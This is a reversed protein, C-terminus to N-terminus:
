RSNYLTQIEAASLARNYIRVEDILGNYPNGGDSQAGITLPNAADSVRNTTGNTTQAYTTEVGNIYIRANAASTSGDWSIAIHQWVNASIVNSNSTHNLDTDYDVVFSLRGAGTSSPGFKWGSAGAATRKSFVDDSAAAVNRPYIWASVTIAPLQDLSTASGANVLDDNGDFNLAKGRKGDVWTPGGTLTGRNENGSGDGAVTGTGENMSWYGVLGKDTPPAFKAAGSKYLTQIEGASLARNYVRVEDILGNFTRDAPTNGGITAVNASDDDLSGDGTTRTSVTVSKGDIYFIAPTGVTGSYTFAVHIWKNFTLVNRADYIDNNAGTTTQNFRFGNVCSDSNCLYLLWGVATGQSKDIIRGFNSEGLSRANIWATVTRAGLGIQDLSADSGINVYDDVGDFNLAKGRKGDVWTPGGTLTGRNGNGSGDGAVTGTGENMSWYGVLGLNTLPKSIIAADVINFSLLWLPIVVMLIRLVIRWSASSIKVGNSLEADLPALLNSIGFEFSWFSESNQVQSIPIYKPISM